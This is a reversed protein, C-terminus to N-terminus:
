SVQPVKPASAAAPAAPAAPAAVVAPVPAVAKREKQMLYETAASMVAIAEARVSLEQALLEVLRQRRFDYNLDFNEPSNGLIRVDKDTLTFPVYSMKQGTQMTIVMDFNVVDIEFQVQDNSLGALFDELIDIQRKQAASLGGDAQLSSSRANFLELFTRKDGFM